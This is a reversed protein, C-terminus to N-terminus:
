ENFDVPKQIAVLGNKGDLTPINVLKYKYERVIFAVVNDINFEGSIYDDTPLEFSMWEDYKYLAEQYLPEIDNETIQPTDHFAVFSGPLLWPELIQFDVLCAKFNHWGDILVFSLPSKDYHNELYLSDCTIKLSINKFDSKAMNKDFMDNFNRDVSIVSPGGKLHNRALCMLVASSGCFSGIEMWNYKPDSNLALWVLSEQENPIMGSANPLRHPTMGFKKFKGHVILKTIDEHM